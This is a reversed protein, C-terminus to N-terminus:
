PGPLMPNGAQPWLADTLALAGSATRYGLRLYPIFDARAIRFEFARPGPDWFVPTMERIGNLLVPSDAEPPLFAGRVTFRGGEWGMFLDRVVSRTFLVVHVVMDGRRASGWGVHTWLPDLVVERHSPSEMWAREVASLSEGAGVIEAVRLSTGGAARWRELVTTGGAGLHSIEGRASLDEAHRRATQGLLPDVRLLSLGAAERMRAAWPVPSPEDATSAGAAM